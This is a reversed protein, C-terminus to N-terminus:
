PMVVFLPHIYPCCSKTRNATRQHYKKQQSSPAFLQPHAIDPTSSDESAKFRSDLVVINNTRPQM